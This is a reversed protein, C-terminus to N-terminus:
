GAFTTTHMRRLSKAVRDQASSIERTERDQAKSWTKMQQLSTALQDYEEELQRLRQDFSMTATSGKQVRKQEAKQVM